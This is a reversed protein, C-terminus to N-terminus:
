REVEYKGLGMVALKGVHTWEGAALVPLFPEMPGEYTIEGVVGGMKMRAEQRTSYRELDSWQTRDAAIRVAEAAAILDHYPWELPAGGYFYSLASLRHLLARILHCFEIPKVFHDELRIRTPTLFRLTLSPPFPTDPHLRALFLTAVESAPRAANVDRLKGEAGDYVAVPGEPLEAELRVLEYRGRKKGIGAQGLELFTVIFYPLYAIAQGILVLGLSFEEGPRLLLPRGPPPLPPEIVFPRPIDQYNRLRAAAEHPFSEFVYPYACRQRLLCDPCEQRPQVCVSRRFVTGFGGRWTQGSYPPLYFEETARLLFRFQSLTLSDPFSLASFKM